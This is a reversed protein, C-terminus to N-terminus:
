QEGAGALVKSEIWCPVVDMKQFKLKEYFPMAEPYSNLCIIPLGQAVAAAAVFRLLETAYGRGRYDPHTVLDNIFAYPGRALSHARRVGALTVLRGEVVGGVLRYGDLELLRVDELFQDRKLESRMVTMLDFADQIQQDTSLEAIQLSLPMDWLHSPGFRFDLSNRFCIERLAASGCLFDPGSV